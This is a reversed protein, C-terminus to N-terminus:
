EDAEVFNALCAWANVTRFTSADSPDYSSEPDTPSVLPHHSELRVQVRGAEPDGIGFPSCATDIRAIAAFVAGDIAPTYLRLREASSWSCAFGSTGCSVPALLELGGEASIYLGQCLGGQSRWLLANGPNGPNAPTCNCALAGSVPTLGACLRLHEDAEAEDIGFGASSLAQTATLVAAARDGTMQAFGGSEAALKGMVAYLSMMGLVALLSIVLGVMVSILSFGHQRAQM